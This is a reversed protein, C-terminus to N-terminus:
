GPLMVFYIEFSRTTSFMASFIMQNPWIELELGSIRNNRLYEVISPIEFLVVNSIAATGAFGRHPRITIGEMSLENRFIPDEMLEAYLASERTELGRREGNKYSMSALALQIRIFEMRLLENGEGNEELYDAYVL